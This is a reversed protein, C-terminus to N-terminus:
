STKTASENYVENFDFPLKLQGDDLMEEEIEEEADEDEMDNEMEEEMERRVSEDVETNYANDYVNIIYDYLVDMDIQLINYITSEGDAWKINVNTVVEKDVEYLDKYEPSVSIEVNDSEILLCKVADLEVVMPLRKVVLDNKINVRDIKIKM